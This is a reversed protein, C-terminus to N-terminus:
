FQATRKGLPCRLFRAWTARLDVVLTHSLGAKRRTESRGNAPEAALGENESTRGATAGRAANCLWGSLTVSNPIKFIRHAPRTVKSSIAAASSRHGQRALTAESERGDEAAPGPVRSGRPEASASGHARAALGPGRRSAGGARDGSGRPWGRARAALRPGRPPPGGARGGLGRSPAGM